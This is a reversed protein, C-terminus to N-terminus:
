ETDDIVNLNFDLAGSVTLQTPMVKAWLKYFETQNEYGWKVLSKVGGMEDFAAILAEKVEITTKNPTGKQRGGRREGKKAGRNPNSARKHSKKEIETM